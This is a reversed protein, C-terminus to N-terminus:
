ATMPALSKSWAVSGHSDDNHRRSPASPPFPFGKAFLHTMSAQNFNMIKSDKQKNGRSLGHIRYVAENTGPLDLLFLSFFLLFITLINIQKTAM